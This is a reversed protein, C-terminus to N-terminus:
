KWWNRWVDFLKEKTPVLLLTSCHFTCWLSNFNCGFWIKHLRWINFGLWRFFVFNITEIYYYHHLTILLLENHSLKTSIGILLDSWDHCFVVVHWLRFTPVVISIILSKGNNYALLFMQLISLSGGTFDLLVNGISWGETSKLKFNM